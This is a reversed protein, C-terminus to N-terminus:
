DEFVDLFVIFNFADSHMNIYKVKLKFGAVWIVVSNGTIGFVVTLTLLVLNINDMIAEIDVNNHIGKSSPPLSTNAFM